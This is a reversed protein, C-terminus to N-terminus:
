LFYVGKPFLPKNERLGNSALVSANRNSFKLKTPIGSFIRDTSGNIFFDPKPSTLGFVVASM